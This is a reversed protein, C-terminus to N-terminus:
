GRRKKIKIPVCEKALGISKQVWIDCARRFNQECTELDEDAASRLIRHTNMLPCLLEHGVDYCHVFHNNSSQHQHDKSCFCAVRCGKCLFHSDFSAVKDCCTFCQNKFSKWKTDLFDRMHEVHCKGKFEKKQLFSLQALILSPCEFYGVDFSKCVSQLTMVREQRSLTDDVICRRLNACDRVYIHTTDASYKSPFAELISALANFYKMQLLTNSTRILCCRFDGRFYQQMVRPEISTIREIYLKLHDIFDPLLIAKAKPNRLMAMYYYFRFGFGLGKQESKNMLDQYCKLIESYDRKAMLTSLLREYILYVLSDNTIWSKENGLEDTNFDIRDRLQYAISLASSFNERYCNRELSDIAALVDEETELCLYNQKAANTADRDDRAESNLVLALEERCEMGSNDGTM